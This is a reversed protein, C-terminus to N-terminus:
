CVSSRKGDLQRESNYGFFGSAGNFGIYPFYNNKLWHIINNILNGAQQHIEAVADSKVLATTDDTFLVVKNRPEFHLPLYSTYILYLVYEVTNQKFEGVHM